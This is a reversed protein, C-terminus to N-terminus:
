RSWFRESIRLRCEAAMGFQRAWVIDEGICVIPWNRREWLPIKAAQFLIKVKEPGSRGVRQYQDIEEPSQLLRGGHQRCLRDLAVPEPSLHLLEVPVPASLTRRLVTRQGASTREVVMLRCPGLWDVTAAYRGPASQALPVPKSPATADADAVDGGVLETSLDLGDIPVGDKGAAVEIGIKHNALDPTLQVIFRPDDAATGGALDNLLASLLDHRLTATWAPGTWEPQLSTAIVASRGAGVQGVAM